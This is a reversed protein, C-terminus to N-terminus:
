GVRVENRGGGGLKEGHRDRLTVFFQCSVKLTGRSACPGTATISAAHPLRRSLSLVKPSSRVRLLPRGASQAEELRAAPSALQLELSDVRASDAAATDWGMLRKPVGAKERSHAM